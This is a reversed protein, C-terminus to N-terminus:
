LGRGVLDLYVAQGDSSLETAEYSRINGDRGEKAVERLTGTTTIM